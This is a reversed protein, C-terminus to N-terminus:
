PAAMKTQEKVIFFLFFHLSMVYHVSSGYMGAKNVAVSVCVALYLFLLAGLWTKKVFQIM